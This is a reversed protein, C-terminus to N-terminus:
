NGKYEPPKKALFSKIGETRDSTTHLLFYLDAELRLGQELTLDLGKNVAEKCYRLALPAKAAILGALAEAEEALKERSVVKNVLGAELAQGVNLTEGTLVMELAKGRGVIRSLRQTGGDMPIAGEAIQPLAFSANDAALRLDCALALELGIGLAAGNIAALTPCEMAAIADAPSYKVDAQDDGGAVILETSDGGECFTGGRGTLIVVYIERDGNVQFSVEALEQATELDIRSRQLMIRGTHGTKSFSIADSM